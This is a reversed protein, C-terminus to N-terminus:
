KGRDCAKGSNQHPSRPEDCGCPSEQAERCNLANNRILVKASVQMMIHSTLEIDMGKAHCWDKLDKNVFKTGCDVYIAHTTIGRIHFHTMYEKV